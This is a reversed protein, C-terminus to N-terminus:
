CGARDQRPDILRLWVYDVPQPANWEAAQQPDVPGFGVASYCRQAAINDPHIRVFVRPYRSKALEALSTVLRRGLGQGRTAPDVIIRALEVEAEDDDVWLEGYGVLDEGRYLGFAQVAEERAWARIQAPPVPAAPHSCWWLVEEDTTAWGSVVSASGAPFPRLRM